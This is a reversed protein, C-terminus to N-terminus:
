VRDAIFYDVGNASKREGEVMVREGAWPALNEVSKLWVVKGSATVLAAPVGGHLCRAACARHTKGAGPNMVGLYCKTDVIEGELQERPAGVPRVSEPEVELMRIGDREILAARLKVRGKRGGLDREASWKGAGTLPWTGQPTVLVPFPDRALEGEYERFVGYEFRADPFPSQIAVLVVALVLGAAFVASVVFRIM